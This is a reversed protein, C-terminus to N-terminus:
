AQSTRGSRVRIHTLVTPAKWRPIPLDLYGVIEGNRVRVKHHEDPEVKPRYANLILRYEREHQYANHKHMLAHLYLGSMMLQLVDREYLM